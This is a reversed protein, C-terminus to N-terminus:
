VVSSRRELDEGRSRPAIADLIWSFAGQIASFKGVEWGAAAPPRTSLALFSLFVSVGGGRYQLCGRNQPSANWPTGYRATLNPDPHFGAPDPHFGVRWDVSRHLSHSSVARDRM